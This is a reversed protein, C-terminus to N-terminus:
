RADPAGDPTVSYRLEHGELPAYFGARTYFAILDSYADLSAADNRLPPELEVILRRFGEKEVLRKILLKLFKRRLGAGWLGPLIFLDSNKWRAEGPPKKVVM